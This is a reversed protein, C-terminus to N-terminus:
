NMCSFNIDKKLQNFAKQYEPNDDMHTKLYDFLIFKEELIQKGKAYQLADIPFDVKEGIIDELMVSKHNNVATTKSVYIAFAKLDQLSIAKKYEESQYFGPNSPTAVTGDELKVIVPKKFGQTFAKELCDKHIIQMADSASNSIYNELIQKKILASELLDIFYNAQEENITGTKYAEYIKMKAMFATQEM